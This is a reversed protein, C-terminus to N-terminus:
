KKDFTVELMLRQDCKDCIVPFEEWGDVITSYTKGGCTPCKMYLKLRITKDM